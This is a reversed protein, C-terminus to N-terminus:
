VSRMQSLRTGSSLAALWRLPYRRIYCWVGTTGPVTHTTMAPGSFKPLWPTEAERDESLWAVPNRLALPQWSRVWLASPCYALREGKLHSVPWSSERQAPSHSPSARLEVALKLNAGGRVRYESPLLPPDPTRPWGWSWQSNSTLRRYTFDQRPRVLM